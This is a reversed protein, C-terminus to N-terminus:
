GYSQSSVPPSHAPHALIKWMATLDDLRQLGLWLTQTGPEGDSKRGLFGRLTALLRLAQRLSPPQKPPTPNHTVYALLAKWEAEEFYVTCPVDPIERGLKALHFIRWGVVLDLALCAEISEATGLQRQEIRCGSKLTRHYVEIGWRRTYWRLKECAAAFSDVACTTLLMWRLPKVGAPAEGEEALVAWLAVPGLSEMGHPPQLTVQAFRVELQATRAPQSGRRPVQIEQVGQRPQQALTPWLHGQGDALLRDQEARILLRPGDAQALALQFLAYVDAERDGVSVVQTAPAQRQVETVRRFSHLWKASEKEEIPRQKRQHKKGFNAGDRAWCQVDLLGLPTGDLNFALTSHLWLGLTGEAHSGIPGLRETAPHTRYNLRTTDQVALVVKEAQLRQLTAQYHPQLLTEMPTEDHAFFRYAAKTKARSGCAQPVGAQPRAYFDRALILLRRQLRADGLAAGGFEEEAWDAPAPAPAPEGAGLRQRARRQLPYVLVQKVSRSYAHGADQRGRGATVGVSRWNAARYCTGAFRETDVFTEVLLPRYGYRQQWDSGVRQLVLSLGHSALNDVRLPPLLLFRSNAIVEQLHQRRAEASWGIWRDRAALQWAAASFALGGLWGYSPSHLLYRMQAGCLPGAGLYHYRNMLENWTRAAASDARDIRVVQVPQLTELALEIPAGERRGAEAEVRGPRPIAGHGLSPLALGGRRHLKLLAVRCSVEKLQGRATRWDLWACVRRSLAGRSLGPEVDVAQQIRAILEASFEQGCITV